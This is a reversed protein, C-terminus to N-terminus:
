SVGSTLEKILRVKDADLPKSEALLEDFTKDGVEEQCKRACYEDWWKDRRRLTLLTVAVFLLFIALLAYIM